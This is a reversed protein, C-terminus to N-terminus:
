FMFGVHLVLQGIFDSMPYNDLMSKGDKAITYRSYSTHQSLYGLSLCIRNGGELKYDIGVGPEFFLQTAQYGSRAGSRKLGITGGADFWVFPAVRGDSLSAKERVFLRIGDFGKYETRYEGGMGMSVLADTRQYGAGAGLQVYNNAQWACIIDAGVSYHSLEDIGLGAHIDVGFKVARDQAYAESWFGMALMVAIAQLLMITRYLTKM